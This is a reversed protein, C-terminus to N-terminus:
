STFFVMTSASDWDDIVGSIADAVFIVMLTSGPSVNRSTGLKFTEQFTSQEACVISGAGLIFEARDLVGNALAITNLQALWANRLAIDDSLSKPLLAVYWRGVLTEDPGAPSAGMTVILGHMNIGSSEEFVRISNITAVETVNVDLRASQIVKNQSTM